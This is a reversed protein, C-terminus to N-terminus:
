KKIIEIQKTTTEGCESSSEIFTEKKGWRFFLFKHPRKQYGIVTTENKFERKNIILEPRDDRVKMFGGITFCDKIDIFPFTTDNKSIVPEPRIITRSSDIYYTNTITVTKVQKSAIGAVKLISDIKTSMSQKFEKLTMQLNINHQKESMLQYNNNQVREIETKLKKNQKILVNATVFASAILVVGAIILYLKVRQM